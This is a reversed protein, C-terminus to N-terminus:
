FGHLGETDQTPIESHIVGSGASVWQVDGGCIEGRNGMSDENIIGGSLMYTLTQMGRHPYPRFGASVDERYPSCLEDVM